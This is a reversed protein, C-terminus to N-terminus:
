NHFREQIRKVAKGQGHETKSCLIPVFARYYLYFLFVTHVAYTGALKLKWSLVVFEMLILDEIKLEVSPIGKAIGSKFIHLFGTM